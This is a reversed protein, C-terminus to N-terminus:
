KYGQSEDVLLFVTPNITSETLNRIPNSSSGSCDSQYRLAHSIPTGQYNSTIAVM